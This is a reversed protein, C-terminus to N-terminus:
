HGGPQCNVRGVKHLVIWAVLTLLWTGVYLYLCIHFFDMSKSRFLTESANSAQWIKCENALLVILNSIQSTIYM